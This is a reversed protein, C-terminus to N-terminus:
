RHDAAMRAGFENCERALAGAAANDGYWVGPESVSTIATAIGAKDMAELSRAPTWEALPRQGTKRAVIERIFGPPSLHHHVDIRFPARAERPVSQCAPLVAGAGLAAFRALFLRREYNLHGTVPSWHDSMRTRGCARARSCGNWAHRKPRSRRRWFRRR